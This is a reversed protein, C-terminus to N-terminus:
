KIFTKCESWARDTEAICVKYTQKGRKDKVIIKSNGMKTFGKSKILKGNRFVQVRDEKFTRVENGEWDYSDFVPVRNMAVKFTLSNGKKKATAAFPSAHKFTLSNVTVVKYNEFKYGGACEVDSVYRCRETANNGTWVDTYYRAPMPTYKMGQRAWSSSVADSRIVVTRVQFGNADIGANDDINLYVSEENGAISRLSPFDGTQSEFYRLGSWGIKVGGSLYDYWDTVYFDDDDRGISEPNIGVPMATASPCDGSLYSAPNEYQAYDDTSNDYDTIAWTEPLTLYCTKYVTNPQPVENANAAPAAMISAVLGAIAGLGLLKKKTKM